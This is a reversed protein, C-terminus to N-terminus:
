SDPDSFRWLFWFWSSWVSLLSFRVSFRLEIRIAIELGRRSGLLRSSVSSHRTRIQPISGVSAMPPSVLAANPSITMGTATSNLRSVWFSSSTWIISFM